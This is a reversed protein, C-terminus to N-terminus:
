VVKAQKLKERIGQLQTAVSADIFKDGLRVVLGGLLNEDIRSQLRITRGSMQQLKELLASEQQESLPVASTVTADALGRHEDVLRSYEHATGVLDGIRDNELMILMLREVEAQAGGFIQTMLARKRESTMRPNHLTNLLLPTGDIAAAIEGISAAAEDVTGRQLTVNFLAQAYRRAAGAEGQASM